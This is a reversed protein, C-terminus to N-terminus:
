LSNSPKDPNRDVDWTYYAESSSESSSTLSHNETSRSAVAPWDYSFPLSFSNTGLKYFSQQEPNSGNPTLLVNERDHQGGEPSVKLGSLRSRRRPSDAGPEVARNPFLHKSSHRRKFPSRQAFTAEADTEAAMPTFSSTSSITIAPATAKMQKHNHKNKEDTFSHGEATGTRAKYSQRVAQRGLLIQNEIRSRNKIM